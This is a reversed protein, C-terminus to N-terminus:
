YGFWHGELQFLNMHDRASLAEGWMRPRYMMGAFPSDTEDDCIGIHLERASTAPDVLTDCSDTVNLGNCYTTASAGSRSVGVLCWTNLVVVGIISQAEQDFGLQNLWLHIGGDPYCYFEWGDTAELGRSMLYSGSSLDDFKVWVAMSFDESTFNLDLTDAAPCDLFDSTLDNFDLVMLGNALQTWAPTGHLTLEHGPKALDRTITGTGEM